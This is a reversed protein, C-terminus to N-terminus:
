IILLIALSRSRNTVFYTSSQSWWYLVDAFHSPQHTLFHCSNSVYHTPWFTWFYVSTIYPHDRVWYGCYKCSVLVDRMCKYTQIWRYFTVHHWNFLNEWYNISEVSHIRLSTQHVLDTLSRYEVVGTVHLLYTLLFCMSVLSETSVLNLRLIPHNEKLTKVDIFTLVKKGSSFYRGHFSITIIYPILIAFQRLGRLLVQWQFRYCSYFPM